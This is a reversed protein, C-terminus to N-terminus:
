LLWLCWAQIRETSSTQLPRHWFPPKEHPRCITSGIAMAVVVDPRLLLYPEPTPVQDPHGCNRTKWARINFKRRRM